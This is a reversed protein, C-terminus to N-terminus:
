SNSLTPIFHCVQKVWQANNADALFRISIAAAAGVQLSASPIALTAFYVSRIEHCSRIVENRVCTLDAIPRRGRRDNRSAVPLLRRLKSEITRCCRNCWCRNYSGKLGSSPLHAIAIYAKSRTSRWATSDLRKTEAEVGTKCGKQLNITIQSERHGTTDISRCEGIRCLFTLSDRNGAGRM